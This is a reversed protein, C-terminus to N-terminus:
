RCLMVDTLGRYMRIYCNVGGPETVQLLTSRERELSEKESALDALVRDYHATLQSM